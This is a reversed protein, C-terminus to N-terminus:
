DSIWTRASGKRSALYRAWRSKGEDNRGLAVLARTELIAEARSLELPFDAARIVGLARRADGKALLLEAFAAASVGDRPNEDVLAEVIVGARDSQGHRVFMWAATLLFQREEPTM